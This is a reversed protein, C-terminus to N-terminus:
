KVADKLSQAAKFKVNKSAPFDMPAGTSPNRGKRAARESVNFTGLGSVRVEDGSKLASNIEDIFSSITEDTAKITAGTNIATLKVLDNKNM